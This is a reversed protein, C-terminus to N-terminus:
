GGEEWEMTITDDGNMWVLGIFYEQPILEPKAQRVMAELEAKDVTTKLELKM